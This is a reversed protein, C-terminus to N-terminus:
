IKQSELIKVTYFIALKDYWTMFFHVNVRIFINCNIHIYCKM